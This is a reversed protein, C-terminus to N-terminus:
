YRHRHRIVENEEDEFDVLVRMPAWTRCAEDTASSAMTKFIGELRHARTEPSSAITLSVFVSLPRGDVDAEPGPASCKQKSVFQGSIIHRAAGRRAAGRMAM